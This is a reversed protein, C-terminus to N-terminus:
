KLQDFCRGSSINLLCRAINLLGLKARSSHWCNRRHRIIMMHMHLPFKLFWKKNPVSAHCISNPPLEEKWCTGHASRMIRVVAPAGHSPDTSCDWSGREWTYSLQGIQSTKAVFSWSAVQVCCFWRWTPFELTFLCCDTQRVKRELGM